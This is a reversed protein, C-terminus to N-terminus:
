WASGVTGTHPNVNGHYSWNNTRTHDPNSRYHGQVYSGDSRTYGHVYVDASAIGSICMIGLAVLLTKKM